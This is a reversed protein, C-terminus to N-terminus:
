QYLTELLKIRVDVDPERTKSPEMYQLEIPLLDNEESSLEEPGILPTLVAVLVQPRSLLQEHRNDQFCLNRVIDVAIRKRKPWREQNMLPLLDLLVSEDEIVQARVENLTTINRLVYGVYNTYAERDERNLLAVAERVFDPWVGHLREWVAYANHLSINSLLKAGSEAAALDDATRFRSCVATILSSGSEGDASLVFQVCDSAHACINTLIRLITAQDSSSTHFLTRLRKGIAFDNEKFLQVGESSLSLGEFYNLATKRVDSRTEATLFEVFEEFHGDGQTQAQDGGDGDATM